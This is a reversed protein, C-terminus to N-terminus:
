RTGKCNKKHSLLATLANDSLEKLNANIITRNLHEVTTKAFGNDLIDQEIKILKLRSKNEPTLRNTIKQDALKLKNLANGSLAGVNIKDHEFLKNLAENNINDLNFNMILNDLCEFDTKKFNPNLIINDLIDVKIEDLKLKPIM